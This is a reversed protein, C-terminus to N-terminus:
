MEFNIVTVVDDIKMTPYYEKLSKYMDHLNKFDDNKMDDGNVNSLRSHYVSVVNVIEQRKNDLSKFSMEGLEIDRRGKKIMTRKGNYLKDFVDDALILEKESSNYNAGYIIGFIFALEVMGYTYADLTYPATDDLIVNQLKDKIVDLIPINDKTYSIGLGECIEKIKDEEM